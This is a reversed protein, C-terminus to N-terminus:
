ILFRSFYILAAGAAVSMAARTLRTFNNAAESDLLGFAFRIFAIWGYLVCMAGIFMMSVNAFMIQAAGKSFIDMLNM